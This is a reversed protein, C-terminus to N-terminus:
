FIGQDIVRPRCVLDPDSPGLVSIFGYTRFRIELKVFLDENKGYDYTSDVLIILDSSIGQAM